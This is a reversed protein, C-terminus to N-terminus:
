KGIHELLSELLGLWQDRNLEEPRSELSINAKKAIESAQDTSIKLTAFLSNRIKKRKKAFAM